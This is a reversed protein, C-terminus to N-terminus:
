WGCAPGSFLRELGEFVMVPVRTREPDWGLMEGMDKRAHKFIPVARRGPRARGRVPSQRNGHHGQQLTRVLSPKVRAVTTPYPPPVHVIVNHVGLDLESLKAEVLAVKRAVLSLVLELHGLPREFTSAVCM